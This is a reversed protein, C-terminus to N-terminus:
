YHLSLKISNIQNIHRELILLIIKILFIYNKRKSSFNNWSSFATEFFDLLGQIIKGDFIDTRRNDKEMRNSDM